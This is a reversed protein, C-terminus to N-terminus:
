FRTALSLIFSRPQGYYSSGTTLYYRKDFLNYVNLSATLHENIEYRALLDVVYYSPQTFRAQAPGLGDTYISSQWRIGGGVTLGGDLGGVRYTTFLKAVAKPIQTNIRAGERDVTRNRAFSAAIEWGPQLTGSVEIEFGRTRTGSKAEYAQSGDPAYVDPIAIAKNDEEVQYLAAGVNLRGDLFEAKLGAEYSDGALPDIYSGDVQKNSQPTFISTYSAYATWHDSLDYTVAAYPVFEHEARRQSTTVGTARTYDTEDRRWDLYRTGLIVALRDTPRLRVSLYAGNNREDMGHTGISPNDPAPPYDGDWDYIDPVMGDWGAHTWNTYSPSTYHTRSLTGGFAADHERGFLTFTGSALLNLADQRPQYAWRTAWLNVGQGTARSPYGGSAYGVLEDSDTLTRTANVRVNWDNAFRHEVEAFMSTAHRRSYAWDAAASASRSWEIRSGDEAYAPRGGRAHASLDHRQHSIGGRVQTAASLDAEVIGYFAKRRDNFREIYSDSDQAMAVLRARVSGSANLPTSLDFMGRKHNWSGTELTLETRFDAFPKKRVLNVAGAPSGVGNMMGAAGRMVEVRDYLSMDQSQFISTYPSILKIGDVMYTDVSFGRSYIPSSDSGVNGGQAVVLGATQNAVDTLQTLKQDKMRQDTIVSVSQPTERLSLDLGSSLSTPGTATYAGTGETVPDATGQVTVAELMATGQADPRSLSVNSGNRRFAIGTGALLKQLAQDPTLEGSVAPARLGRVTEPLYFIQLSAQEGLQVLADDLSQAPISIHATTPQAGAASAAAGLALAVSLALARRMAGRNTGVQKTRPRAGRGAQTDAM